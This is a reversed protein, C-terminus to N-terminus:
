LAESLLGATYSVLPVIKSYDMRVPGIVGLMGVVTGCRSYPATVFSLGDFEDISSESGMCINVGGVGISNDLVKVLLSKHEFAAFLKRMREFDDRFEPQDFINVRGELYFAEGTSIGSPDGQSADPSLNFARALLEGYLRKERSMDTLIRARLSKLTLGEGVSNLYDSMEDLDFGEKVAGVDIVRTRVQGLSSVVLLMLRASGMPLLRIHKIVFSDIGPVLALGACRTLTSLARATETLLNDTDRIRDLCRKILEKEADVPGETELLSDVYFRFCKETPVRGASAHRKVLFGDGELDAMISRITAPSLGPSYGTSVAKSSVPAATRIYEKMIARLVKRYRESIIEIGRNAAKNEM